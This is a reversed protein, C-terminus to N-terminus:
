LPCDCLAARTRGGQARVKGAATFQRLWRQLTRRAVAPHEAQLDAITLPRVAHLITQYIDDKATM